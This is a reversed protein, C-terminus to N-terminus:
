RGDPECAQGFGSKQERKESNLEEQPETLRLAIASM